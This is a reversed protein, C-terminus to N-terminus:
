GLDCFLFVPIIHCHEYSKAVHGNYCIAIGFHSPLHTSFVGLFGLFQGNCQCHSGRSGFIYDIFSPSRQPEMM